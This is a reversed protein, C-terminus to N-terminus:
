LTSQHILIDHKSKALDVLRVAATLSTPRSEVSRIRIHLHNLVQCLQKVLHMLLLSLCLANGVELGQELLSIWTRNVATLLEKQETAASRVTCSDIM